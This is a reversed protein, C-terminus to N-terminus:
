KKLGVTHRFPNTEEAADGWIKAYRM